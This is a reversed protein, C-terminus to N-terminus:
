DEMKAAVYLVLAGVLVGLIGIGIKIMSLNQCSGSDGSYTCHQAPLAFALWLAGGIVALGIVATTLRTYLPRWAQGSL